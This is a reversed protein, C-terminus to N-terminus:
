RYNRLVWEAGDAEGMKMRARIIDNNLQQKRRAMSEQTNAIGKLVGMEYPSMGGGACGGGACGDNPGYLVADIAGEVIQAGKWAARYGIERGAMSMGRKFNDSFSQGGRGYNGRSRGRAFAEGVLSLVIGVVLAMMMVRMMKRM